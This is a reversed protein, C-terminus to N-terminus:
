SSQLHAPVSFCAPTKGRLRRAGKAGKRTQKWVCHCCASLVVSDRKSAPPKGGERRGKCRLRERFEQSPVLM